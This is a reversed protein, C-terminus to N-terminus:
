GSFRHSDSLLAQLVCGGGEGGGQGEEEEEGDGEGERGGAPVPGDLSPSLSVSVSLFPPPCSLADDILAQLFYYYFLLNFLSVSFSLSAPFPMM